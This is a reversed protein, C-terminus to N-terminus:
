SLIGYSLIIRPTLAVATHTIGRELYILDGPELEFVEHGIKYLTSGALSLIYVDYDDKHTVSSAGTSFSFFIDIDSSGGKINFSDDLRKKIGNFKNDKQVGKLQFVSGCIFHQNWNSSIRSEFNNNNILLALSNFDFPKTLEIFKKTVIDTM